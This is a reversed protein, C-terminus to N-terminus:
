VIKKRKKTNYVWIMYLLLTCLTYEKLINSCFNEFESTRPLYIARKVVVVVIKKKSRNKKENKFLTFLGEEIM